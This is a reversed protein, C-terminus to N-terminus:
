NRRGLFRQNRRPTGIIGTNGNCCYDGSGIVYANASSDLVLRPTGLASNNGLTTSYVLKSGSSDLKTLFVEGSIGLNVTSPYGSCEYIGSIYVNDSSDVAIGEPVAFQFCGPGLYTSWLLSGASSFKSVFFASSGSPGPFDPEYVGPTTPFNTSSTLGAVYINGSADSTQATITDSGSGGFYSSYIWSPNLSSQASALSSAVVFALAITFRRSM